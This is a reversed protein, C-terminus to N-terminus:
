APRRRQDPLDRHIPDPQEAGHVIGARCRLHVQRQPGVNGAKDIPSVTLIQYGGKPVWDLTADGNVDAARSGQFYPTLMYRFSQTDSPGDFTFTNSSPAEATWSGDTFATATITATPPSTDVTFSTVASFNLSTHNGDDGKVKISYTGGEALVGAPVTVQALNGNTVYESTYSGKLTAGEFVEFVGRVNGGDPDYVPANLTPTLTTSFGPNGPSVTPTGATDPRTNYTVSIRPRLAPDFYNASRYRRFTNSNTEDFARVRIGNNLNVNDAWTQVINRVDFVADNAPCGTGGGYAASFSAADTTSADPQNAWTLSAADWFQTIRAARLEGARCTGSVFNRLVMHASLIQKGAWTPNGGGFWIFSRAKNVGGDSTGARLDDTGANGSTSNPYSVWTDSGSYTSFSPDVTVPYVTDPDTLFAMDPSLTVTPTGTSTEGVATEVPVTVPDGLEDESSDWMVPAPATVLTKGADTTIELGGAPTEVLHAGRTLVPVTFAVPDVPPQHLVIDHRFGTPTATVVLDGAGPAVGPYTATNAELVPEPLQQTWRWELQKGRRDVVEAFTADGGDSFVVDVPSYKPAIGGEVPVLTYDVEHWNGEEDRVSSPSSATESSWTGDPNAYVSSFETRQSLDEVPEGTSRATVMASVPDPRSVGSVASATPGSDPQAAAAPPTGVETATAAPMQGPMLQLGTTMLAAALLGAKPAIFVHGIRRSRGRM